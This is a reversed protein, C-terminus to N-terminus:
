ERRDRQEDLLQRRESRQELWDEMLPRFQEWESPMFRDMTESWPLEPDTNIRADELIGVLHYCARSGFIFACEKIAGVVSDEDCFAIKHLAELAAGVAERVQDNTSGTQASIQALIDQTMM